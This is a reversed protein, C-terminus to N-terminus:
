RRDVSITSVGAAAQVDYRDSAADWGDSRLTTGASLGSRTAGDITVSSAGGGVQVRTPVGTPLHMAWRSVGGSMRVAVTGAPRPLALDISNVGGIFEIDAVRGASLDVVEDTAGAVLRLRWLVSTDLQIDVVSAGGHGSDVLQLRVRGDDTVVRPVHRGGDPTEIRYLRDGLEAARITVSTAGTLLEFTAADRGDLPGSVIRDARRGDRRGDHDRDSDFASRVIVAALALFLLVVVVVAAVLVWTTVSRRPPGAPPPPASVATTQSM